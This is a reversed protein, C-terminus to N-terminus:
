PRVTCSTSSSAPGASTQRTATSSMVAIASLMRSVIDASTPAWRDTTTAPPQSCLGATRATLSRCYPANPVGSRRSGPATPAASIAPTAAPRTLGRQGAPAPQGVAATVPRRGPPPIEGSGRAILRTEVIETTYPSADGDMRRFLHEAALRGITHPDQAVVTVPPDLLDALRFDDFGVLAVEHQRGTRRLAQLAGITILNQATFLATPPDPGDLLATTSADATEVTVADHVTDRAAVTLGAARMADLFGAHREQATAIRVLDGLFGIHRHGASILHTVGLRAGARNDALVVDGDIKGPARDVFVMPTGARRETLLYSHDDGTPMIILGDVRRSSFAAVLERERLPDEDLSGALVAVGRSRAVNEVARHLASSYPNEVNELILGITATRGDSRRLSRAGLNLQFALQAAAERVRTSMAVSVGPEGNVVRSVTKLSVGALAAVDRMTARPSAPDPSPLPGTM